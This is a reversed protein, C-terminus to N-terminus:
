QSVATVLVLVKLYAQKAKYHQGELSACFHGAQHHDGVSANHLSSGLCWPCCSWTVKSDKRLARQHQRTRLLGAESGGEVLREEVVEGELVSDGSKEGADEEM